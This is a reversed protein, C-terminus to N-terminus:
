EAMRRQGRNERGAAELLELFRDPVPQNVVSDYIARLQRGIHAQLETMWAAQGPTPADPEAIDIHRM